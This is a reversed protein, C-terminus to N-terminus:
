NVPLRQRLADRDIWWNDGVIIDLVRSLRPLFKAPDDLELKRLWFDLQEQNQVKGHREAVKALVNNTLFSLSEFEHDSRSRVGAIYHAVAAAVAGGDSNDPTEDVIHHLMTITTIPQVPYTVALWVGHALATIAAPAETKYLVECAEVADQWSEADVFVDFAARAVGWAEDPEGLGTRATAIDLQIRARDVASASAPLADLRAQSSRLLEAYEAQANDPSFDVHIAATEPDHQM